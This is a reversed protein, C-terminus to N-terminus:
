KKRQKLENLTAVFKPDNRLSALEPNHEFEYVRYGDSLAKAILPIAKERQGLAEFAEGTKYSVTPDNPDLALAQRALVLSKGVDGVAAYEGALEAVLV